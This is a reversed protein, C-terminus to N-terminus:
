DPLEDLVPGTRWTTLDSSFQRQSIPDGVAPVYVSVIGDRNVDVWRGGTARIAQLDAELTTWDAGTSVLLKSTSLDDSRVLLLRQDALVYLHSGNNRTPNAVAVTSWNLGSDGSIYVDRGDYWWADTVAIRDGDAAISLLLDGYSAAKRLEYANEPEDPNALLQAPLSRQTWTAGGDDSYALGLDNSGPTTGIWIRGKGNQAVPLDASATDPVALPRITGYRADVVRPLFLEPFDGLAYEEGEPRDFRDALRAVSWQGDSIVLAQERASVTTPEDRWTLEAHGGSLSDILWTTPTQVHASTEIVVFFRGDLVYVAPANAEGLLGHHLEGGDLSGTEYAWGTSCPPDTRCKRLSVFQDAASVQTSSVEPQYLNTDSALAIEEASPKVMVGASEIATAFSSDVTATTTDPPTSTMVVAATTTDPPTNTTVVAPEHWDREVLVVAAAVVVLVAAALMWRPQLRAKETPNPTELDITAAADISKDPTPDLLKDQVRAWIDPVAVDDLVMFRDAVVSDFDDRM